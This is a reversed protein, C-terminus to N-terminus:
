AGEKGEIYGLRYLLWLFPEDVRIPSIVGKVKLDVPNSGLASVAFYATDSFNVDIAGKLPRDVKEIFRRIEGNINEFEAVNFTKAHVMNHFVNSNSRIYEGDEEKLFHLMDSKTLVIATPINTKGGQHGIFSDFLNIIVERPSDHRDTFDGPKEGVNIKIRDRITKIQLPDILLLMGTSNKVHSARMEMYARDTMGEGAVDFFVLTLPDKSEDKFTFQFILPEQVESVQTSRLVNGQEFLPEEYQDRYKRSIETNIPMCAADFNGATTHELTHILSTMYVSKGVQSPGIISIINSPTKGVTLPLDNHCKPCLRRRSVINYRDTIGVLVRGAYLKNEEPITDPPIVAELEDFTGLGFRKRYRNLVDDEALAYDEDDERHHAARFVVEDPHYKEFCFPCVIDYYPPKEKVIVKKSGFLGKLFGAM